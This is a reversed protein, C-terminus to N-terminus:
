SKGAVANSVWQSIDEIFQEDMNGPLDYDLPTSPEDGSIFLHNLSEYLKLTVGPTDKLAARWSAYDDDVTVQYDRGGQMVLIPRDLQCAIRLPAFDRKELWYAPGIGLPLKSRPTSKSLEPSDAVECQQELEAIQSTQPAPEDDKDDMAAFHRLQRLASRYMPVVPTAMLICAAIKPELSAVYGGLSHGLIFIGDARIRHHALCQRVADLAHELYEDSLTFTKSNRIRSGHTHTVKDFRLTAIGRGALGLALDKFPKCADVSSDRDMPGSGALMTVCPVKDGGRPLTLTGKVKLKGTGLRM